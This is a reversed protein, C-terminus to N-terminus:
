RPGAKMSVRSSAGRGRESQTCVRTPMVARSMTMPPSCLRALHQGAEDRMKRFEESAGFTTQIVNDDISEPFQYPSQLQKVVAM